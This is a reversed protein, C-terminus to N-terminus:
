TRDEIESRKIYTCNEGRATYKKREKKKKKKTPSPDLAKCSCLVSSNSAFRWDM